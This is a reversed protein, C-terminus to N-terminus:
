VDTKIAKVIIQNGTVDHVIIATEKEIYEGQTVVDIRKGEIYATGSPRLNSITRGNKGLYQEMMPDQSIVGDASSLVTRLTVPSKALMKLGVIVLTPIMVVDLTLFVTGTMASFQTFVVFLSYGFVGIALVTLLGGSPLIIEAIIVVIGALQLIIPFGLGSM